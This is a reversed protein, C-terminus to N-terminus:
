YVVPQDGVLFWPQQGEAVGQDDVIAQEGAIEPDAGATQGQQEEQMEKGKGAEADLPRPSPPSDAPRRSDQGFLVDTRRDAM